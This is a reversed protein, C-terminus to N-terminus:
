VHASWGGAASAVLLYAAGKLRKPPDVLLLTELTLVVAVAALVLAIM